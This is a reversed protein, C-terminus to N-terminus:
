FVVGLQVLIYDAEIGHVKLDAGIVWHEKLLYRLYYNQFLLNPVKKRRLVYIGLQQGFRVNGIFFENGIYPGIGIQYKVNEVNKADQYELLGGLTLGTTRSIQFSKNIMISFINETKTVLTDKKQSYGLLLAMRKVKKRYINVTNIPKVKYKDLLYEVGLGYATYNIGLNPQKM